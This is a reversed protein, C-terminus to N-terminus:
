QLKVRAIAHFRLFDLQRIHWVGSPNLRTRHGQQQASSPITGYMELVYFVMGYKAVNRKSLYRIENCSCCLFFSKMGRRLEDDDDDDYLLTSRASPVLAGGGGLCHIWSRTCPFHLYSRLGSCRGGHLRQQGDGITLYKGNRSSSFTTQVDIPFIPHM